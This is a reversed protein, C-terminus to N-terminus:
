FDKAQLVEYFFLYFIIEWSKRINFNRYGRILLVLLKFLPEAGKVNITNTFLKM